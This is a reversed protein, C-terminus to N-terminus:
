EWFAVLIQTWFERRCIYTHFQNKQWSQFPISFHFWQTEFKRYDWKRYIRGKNIKTFIFQNRKFRIERQHSHSQIRAFRHNQIGQLNKWQNEPLPKPGFRFAGVAVPFFYHCAKELTKWNKIFTVCFVSMKNQLSISALEFCIELLLLITIEVFFHM